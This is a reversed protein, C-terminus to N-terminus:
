LLSAQVSGNGPVERLALVFESTPPELWAQAASKDFTWTGDPRLYETDYYHRGDGIAIRRSQSVFWARTPAEVATPQDLDAHLEPAPADYDPNHSSPHTILARVGADILEDVLIRLMEAGTVSSLEGRSDAHITLGEDIHRVVVNKCVAGDPYEWDPLERGEDSVREIRSGARLVPGAARKPEPTVVLFEPNIGWNLDHEREFELAGPDRWRTFVGPDARVLRPPTGPPVRSLLRRAEVFDGGIAAKLAGVHEPLDRSMDCSLLSM